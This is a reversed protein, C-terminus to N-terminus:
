QLLDIIKTKARKERSRPAKKFKEIKRLGSIQRFKQTTFMLTTNNQSRKRERKGKGTLRRV